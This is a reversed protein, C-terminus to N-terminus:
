AHHRHTGDPAKSGGGFSCELDTGALAADESMFVVTVNKIAPTGGYYNENATFLIQEQPRWEVFKYPGSGIPNQGYSEDYAHEPVIGLSAMTNLFVSTPKTLTIEVTHEDKAVADKMYTLDVSGMADKATKLTFAVDSAKVKEGDTFYADDRITFTWTLGDGSLAYDTALDNSFTLDANYKVLSSQVIPSNGHGWGKTPDLTSPESGIAIVVSDKKEAGGKSEGEVPKKGCGTFLAFATIMTLTM